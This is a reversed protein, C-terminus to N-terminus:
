DLHRDFDMMLHLVRVVFIGYETPQYFLAHRGANHKHLLQGGKTLYPRGILPFIAASRAAQVLLARYADAQGEGYTLFTYEAIGELDLDALRSFRAEAM